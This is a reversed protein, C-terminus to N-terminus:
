LPGTEVEKSGRTSLFSASCCQMIYSSPTWSATGRRSSHGPNSVEPTLSSPLGLDPEPVLHQPLRLNRSVRYIGFYLPTYCDARHSSYCARGQLLVAVAHTVGNLALLTQPERVLAFMSLPQCAGRFSFDYTVMYNGTQFSCFIM